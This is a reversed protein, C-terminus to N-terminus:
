NGLVDYVAPGHPDHDEYQGHALQRVVRHRYALYAPLRGMSFPVMVHHAGRPQGDFLGPQEM